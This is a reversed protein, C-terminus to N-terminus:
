PRSEMCVQICAIKHEPAYSSPCSSLCARRETGCNTLMAGILAVLIAACIVATNIVVYRSEMM